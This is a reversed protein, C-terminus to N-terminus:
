NLPLEPVSDGDCFRLYGWLSPIHIDVKGTPSWVWNEEPGDKLVWEVRSFNVRWVKNVRSNTFERNLSAFPIAIEVYWASDTDSSKNLSGKCHTALKLGKIDWDMIFKGGESYPKTMMLDMVTGLANNELEFYLQGDCFPDLFVEFDNDHWIVEDRVTISGTIDDEELAAGIYLYDDDWLMRVNTKKAPVPYGEGRIDSFDESVAAKQWAAENLRGDIRIKGTTRQADYVRLATSQQAPLMIPFLVTLALCSVILKKM